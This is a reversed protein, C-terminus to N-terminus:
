VKLSKKIAAKDLHYKHMLKNLQRTGVGAEAASANIRGKNRLLLEQLYRREIEELGHKRVEALTGAQPIAIDAPLAVSDFLEPPFSEPMMIPSNELIYARELLNELERINGPWAYNLLGNMVDPHVGQINKTNFQNFRKLFADVFLPIDEKRDHLQPITLPFVNLRYYLDKRFQGAECMAKLDTNSAAIVRVNANLPQDGGVRQYIGEQLVTLLKVQAAMSITGIEDLFITGGFAVEFRGPKRRHAGTFAGKEHGFLESEILTEPIAGCHVSIFPGNKRNSHRHIRKAMFSKGTGTEGLLLVTTKTPGVSMVNDYVKKMLPSLTQVVDLSDDQWLRERLYALESQQLRDRSIEDLVLRVEEPDIPEAIYNSAGNKMYNVAQRIGNGAVIIIIAMMPRLQRLQGILAKPDPPGDLGAALTEMQALDIFLCDCAITKLGAWLQDSSSAVHTQHAEAFIRRITDRTCPNRTFIFISDM